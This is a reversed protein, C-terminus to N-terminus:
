YNKCFYGKDMEIKTVLKEDRDWVQYGYEKLLKYIEYCNICQHTELSIIMKNNTFTNKGGRLVFEEAGEVDIKCGTIHEINNEECFTDLKLVKVDTFSLGCHGFRGCVGIEEIISHGGPNTPHIYIRTEGNTDSLAAEVIHIDPVGDSFKKIEIINNPIPEFAYVSSAKKTEWIAKTYLGWSAGIDLFVGYEAEKIM